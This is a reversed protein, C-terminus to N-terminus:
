TNRGIELPPGVMAAAIPAYGAELEAIEHLLAREQRM